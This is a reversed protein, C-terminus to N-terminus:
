IGLSYSKIGQGTLVELTRSPININLSRIDDVNLDLPHANLTTGKQEMRVGHRNDRDFVYLDSTKPDVSLTAPRSVSSDSLSYVQLPQASFEEKGANHLTGLQRLVTIKSESSHGLYLRGAVPDLALSDAGKMFEGRIIRRPSQEGSEKLQYVLLQAMGASDADLVYLEERVVDTAVALVNELKPSRARLAEFRTQGTISARQIFIMDKWAVVSFRSDDSRRFTNAPAHSLVDRFCRQTLADVAEKSRLSEGHFGECEAGAQPVSSPARTWLQDASASAAVFFLLTLFIAQTKIM